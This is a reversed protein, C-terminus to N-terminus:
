REGEDGTEQMAWYAAMADKLLCDNGHANTDDPVEGDPVGYCGIMPCDTDGIKNEIWWLRYVLKKAAGLFAAEEPKM